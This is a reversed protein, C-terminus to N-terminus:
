SSLPAEVDLLEWDAPPDGLDPVELQVGGLKASEHAIVGPICYRAAAWAHNPPLKNALVAKVFDDVLFQHSGYHGNRLGKFSEPLRHVPHVKSVGSYFERELAEHLNEAGEAKLNGPRTGPTQPECALLGALDQWDSKHLGTWCQAGAQEEYCGKTGYLSLHVSNGKSWGVRRFENIRCMAGDATRMLATQNSFVNDWLNAGREFVGDGEKDVWGLCSVHTVYSGTVSLIMSVSHTPYYMPPIGAVRKWEKGGSYRFADYFGHSMDHMYQAEGYFIHGFDGKKHRERCYITAPYYYSTEGTMYILRRESALQIIRKIEDISQAIPVACYLHKGSELARIAQPGHLHRQTLLVVADIDAELLEDLGAYGREVGFQEKAREVREPIIDAVAVDEVGPHAQFLPIFSPAFQGLGCIGIRLGM